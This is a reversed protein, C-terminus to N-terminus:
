NRSQPRFVELQPTLNWKYAMTHLINPVIIVPFVTSKLICRCPFKLTNIASLFFLYMYHSHSVKFFFLHRHPRGLQRTLPYRTRERTIVYELTSILIAHIWLQLRGPTKMNRHKILCGSHLNVNERRYRFGHVVCITLRLYVTQESTVDTAMIADYRLMRYCKKWETLIPTMIPQWKRDARISVCDEWGVKGFHLLSSRSIVFSLRYSFILIRYEM